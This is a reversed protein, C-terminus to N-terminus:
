RPLRPSLKQPGMASVCHEGRSAVRPPPAEPLYHVPASVPPRAWATFVARTIRPTGGARRSESRVYARLMQHDAAWIGRAWAGRSRFAIHTHTRRRGRSCVHWPEARQSLPHARRDDDTTGYLYGGRERPLPRALSTWTAVAASPSSDLAPKSSRTGRRRLASGQCTHERPLRRVCVCM